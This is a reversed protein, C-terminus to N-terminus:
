WPGGKSAISIAITRPGVVLVAEMDRRLRELEARNLDLPDPDLANGQRRFVAGEGLTLTGFVTM